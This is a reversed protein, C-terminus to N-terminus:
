KKLAYEPLITDGCEHWDCPATITDYEICNPSDRFELRYLCKTHSFPKKDIILITIFLLLTKM